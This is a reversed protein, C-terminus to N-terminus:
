AASTVEPYHTAAAIVRNRGATKGEYLAADARNAAAEFKEDNQLTAVGMTITINLSLDGIQMTAAAINECIRNATHLAQASDSHPLLLLFEEGGWRCVSDTIRLEKRLLHGLQRLVEDGVEHGYTDNIVKFRDVDCLVISLPFSGRRGEAEALVWVERLRRRNMLGTLPDTTAHLNLTTQQRYVILFYHTFLATINLIPICFNLARLAIALDPGVLPSTPAHSVYYDLVMLGATMVTLLIWKAQVTLRGSVAVLPIIPILKYHYNIGHGYRLGFHICYAIGISIITVLGLLFVPFSRNPTASYYAPICALSVAICIWWQPDGISIFVGADLLCIAIAILACRQVILRFTARVIDSDQGLTEPKLLKMVFGMM